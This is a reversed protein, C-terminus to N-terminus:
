LKWEIYSSTNPAQPATGAGPTKEARTDFVGLAVDRFTGSLDDLLAFDFSFTKGVNQSPWTPANSVGEPTAQLRGEQIPSFCAGLISIKM